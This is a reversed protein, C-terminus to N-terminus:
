ARRIGAGRVRTVWFWAMLFLLYITGLVMALQGLLGEKKEAASPPVLPRDTEVPHEETPNLPFVNWLTELTSREGQQAIAPPACMLCTGFLALTLCGVMRYRRLM